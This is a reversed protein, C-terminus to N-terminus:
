ILMESPNSSFAIPHGHGEENKQLIMVVITEESSFYFIFFEKTYDLSVLVPAEVL